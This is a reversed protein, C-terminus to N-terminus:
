ISGEFCSDAMCASMKSSMHSPQQVSHPATGRTARSSENEDSVLALGLQEDEDSGLVQGCLLGLDRLRLRSGSASIQLYLPFSLGWAMARSAALM